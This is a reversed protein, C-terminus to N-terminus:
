QNIICSSHFFLSNIEDLNYEGSGKFFFFKVALNETREKEEMQSAENAM